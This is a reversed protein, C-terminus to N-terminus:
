AVLHVSRVLSGLNGRADFRVRVRGVERADADYVSGHLLTLSDVLNLWSLERHGRFRYKAGDNGRLALEYSARRADADVVLSGEARVADAFGQLTVDGALKATRSQAFAALDTAEVDLLFDAAREDVPASLLYFGGRLTERYGVGFM